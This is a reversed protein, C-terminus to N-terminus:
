DMDAPTDYILGYLGRCHNQEESGVNGLAGTAPKATHCQCSVRGALALSFTSALLEPVRGHACGGGSTCSIAFGWAAGVRPGVSCSIRSPNGPLHPSGQHQMYPQCLITCTPSQQTEKSVNGM